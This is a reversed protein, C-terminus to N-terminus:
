EMRLLRKFLFSELDRRGDIVAFVYIGKPDIKYVIRYPTVSIQRFHNIGIEKLESVIRYRDPHLKLENCKKQIEDSIKKAANPQEMSVYDLIEELDKAAQNTWFVKKRKM